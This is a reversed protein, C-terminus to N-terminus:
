LGLVVSWLRFPVLGFDWLGVRLSGFPLPGLALSLCVFLGAFVIVFLGFVLHWPGFSLLGLMLPCPGVVLSWPGVVFVWPGFFLSWLGFVM